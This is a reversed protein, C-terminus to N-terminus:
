AVQPGTLRELGAELDFAERRIRVDFYYIAMLVVAFPSIIARGLSEVIAQLAPLHAFAAIIGVFGFISSAGFMVAAVAISFLLARWFEGRNFIRAFGLRVSDMVGREEIVVSYMAFTLAVILPALSPLLVIFGVFGILVGFLFAAGPSIAVIVGILFACALILILAAAYWALFVLVDIGIMGVIPLWRGLVVAYCARFEIPRNLYLRAVGVAVANLAFPWIAYTVLVLIILLAVTTPSSFISPMEEGSIREGSTFIRIMAQFQPQMSADLIYQLIALPAIMVAVIAAFPVFNRIYLTVARDFIEGFGLPRLELRRENV